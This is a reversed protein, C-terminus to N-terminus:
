GKAIDFSVGELISLKVGRSVYHKSLDRVSIFPKNSM